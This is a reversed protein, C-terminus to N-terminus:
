VGCSGGGSGSPPAVQKLIEQYGSGSSYNVGLVEKPNIEKWDIGKSGFYQAITLYTDPFWYSNVQLAAKYMKEESVDQSAMLELFGLMAMGHNCDPFYTPNNCCPRYINKSVEEVLRQQDVTLKIFEHVSYHSMSDGQALTWGGTSAFVGAGGYAPDTMPGNELIENKNGLGLAWFLNLILGSNESTIKLKGNDLGDLLKTAEENLGGRNLYLEEFKKRDIVGSEVLRVGLDGWVVPLVDGKQPIVKSELESIQLNDLNAPGSSSIKFKATYAWAGAIVFVSILVSMGLIYEKKNEIIKNEM